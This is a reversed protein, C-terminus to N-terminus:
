LGRKPGTDFLNPSQRLNKKLYTDFEHYNAFDFTRFLFLLTLGLAWMDNEKFEQFTASISKYKRRKSEFEPSLFTRTYTIVDYNTKGQKEIIAGGFDIFRVDGSQINLMINDPKIDVHVMHHAHLLKLRQILIESIRLLVKPNKSTIKTLDVYGELYDFCIYLKRNKEYLGAPCLFYQCIKEERLYELNRYQHLLVNDLTGIAKKVVYKKKTLSDEYLDIVGCGGAAIRKKIKSLTTPFPKPVENLTPKTSFIKGKKKRFFWNMKSLLENLNVILKKHPVISVNIRLPNSPTKKVKVPYYPLVHYKFVCIQHTQYFRHNGHLLPKSQIFLKKTDLRV